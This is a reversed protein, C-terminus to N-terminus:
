VQALVCAHARLGKCTASHIQVSPQQVLLPLSPLSHGFSQALILTCSACPYLATSACPHAVTAHRFTHLLCLALPRQSHITKCLRTCPHPHKACPHSNPTTHNQVGPQQVPITPALFCQALFARPIHHVHTPLQARIQVRTLTCPRPSHIANSVGAHLHPTCHIPTCLPHCTPASPPHTPALAPKCVQSCPPRALCHQVVRNCAPHALPLRNARPHPPKACKHKRPQSHLLARPRKHPAKCWHKHTTSHALPHKCTQHARKCAYIRALLTACPPTPKACKHVHVQIHTITCPTNARPHPAKCEQTRASPHICYHLAHKCPSTPSQVLTNTCPLALLPTACKHAHVLISPYVHLPTNARPHPAKCM